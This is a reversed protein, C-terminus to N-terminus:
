GQVQARTRDYQILTLRTQPVAKCVRSLQLTVPIRNYSKAVGILFIVAVGAGGVAGACAWEDWEGSACRM